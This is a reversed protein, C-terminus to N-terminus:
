PTALEISIPNRTKFKWQAESAMLMFNQNQGAAGLTAIYVTDFVSWNGMCAFVIINRRGPGRSIMKWM